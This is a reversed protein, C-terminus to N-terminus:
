FYYQFFGPFEFKGLKVKYFVEDPTTGSFPVYGCLLMYLVVGLSWIDCKENYEQKLVEPAIYYPTGLTKKMRSNTNFKRSTGFDIVKLNSDPKLSEFLINEPKLDRHVINQTHCYVVALLIQRM